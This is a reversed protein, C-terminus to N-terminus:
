QFWIGEWELIVERSGVQVKPSCKNRIEDSMANHQHTRAVLQSLSFAQM